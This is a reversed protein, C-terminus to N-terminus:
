PFAVNVTRASGYDDGGGREAESDLIL